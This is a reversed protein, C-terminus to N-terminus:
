EGEFRHKSADFSDLIGQIAETQRNLLQREALIISAIQRAATAISENVIIYKFHDFQVVENFANRLRTRLEDTDETARSTLRAELVEFSPPLIFITVCDPAKEAIQLAGQVDVEVILDKGSSAIKEAEILSTGYLNGHVNAYELFENAAIKQEFRDRTIFHYERGNEEGFRQARTTHSVSYGLEPLMGRVESILTGKGGGSPSSIIILNGKM